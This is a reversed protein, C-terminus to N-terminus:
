QKTEVKAMPKESSKLAIIADEWATDGPYLWAWPNEASPTDSRSSASPQGLARRV